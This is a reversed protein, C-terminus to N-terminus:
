FKLNIALEFNDNIAKDKLNDFFSGSGYTIGYKTRDVTLNTSASNGNISMRIKMSQTIGKITMNGVVSYGNGSKAVETIVFTATPFNNVGFFEDTKLHGELKEKGKGAELDTVQISTMNVTFSGGVLENGEMILTGEQLEITGTHSGTVKKGTWTITGEKVKVEKKIPNTAFAGTVILALIATFLKTKM